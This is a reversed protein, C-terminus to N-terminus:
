MKEGNHRYLIYVTYTIYTCYKAGAVLSYYTVFIRNYTYMSIVAYTTCYTYRVYLSLLFMQVYEIQIIQLSVRVNCNEYHVSYLVSTTNYYQVCNRNLSALRFSLYRRKWLFLVPPPALGGQGRHASRRHKYFLFTKINSPHGIRMRGLKERVLRRHPYVEYSMRKNKLVYSPTSLKLLIFPVTSIFSHFRNAIWFQRSSHLWCILQFISFRPMFYYRFVM